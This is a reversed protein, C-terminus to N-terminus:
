GLDYLKKYLAKRNEVEIVKFVTYIDENCSKSKNNDLEMVVLKNLKGLEALAVELVINIV